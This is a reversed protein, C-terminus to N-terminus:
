LVNFKHIKFLKEEGCKVRSIKKDYFLLSNVTERLTIHENDIIKLAM